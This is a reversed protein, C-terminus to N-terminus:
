VEEPFLQKNVSELQTKWDFSEHLLKLENHNAPQSKSLKKAAAKLNSPMKEFKNPGQVKVQNKM